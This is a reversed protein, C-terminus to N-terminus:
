KDQHPSTRVISAAKRRAWDFNNPRIVAIDIAGGCSQSGLGFRWRGIVVNCAYDAFDIADQIPMGEFLIPLEAARDTVWQEVIGKDAGRNVLEQIAAEDFGSILRGLADTQGYWNVGFEQPQRILHITNGQHIDCSYVESFFQKDSYGGILVGLVPRGQSHEADYRAVLFNVLDQAITQVTHDPTESAGAYSYEFEMVLSQISRGAIGALGWSMFGIPFDCVQTVKSASEFTQVFQQPSSQGVQQIRGELTVISDAAFVLGEAVRVSICITVELQGEGAIPPANDLIVSEVAVWLVGCM